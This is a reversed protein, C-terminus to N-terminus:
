SCPCSRPPSASSTDLLADGPQLHDRQLHLGTRRLTRPWAGRPAPVEWVGNDRDRSVPDGRAPAGRNGQGAGRAASGDERRRRARHRLRNARGRGRPRPHLALAPERPRQPARAHDRTRARCRRRLVAALRRQRRVLIPVRDGCGIGGDSRGLVVRQDDPRRPRPRPGPDARRDGFQDRRVRRRHGRGHRIPRRLLVLRQDRLRDGGHGPHLGGAHDPLAEQARVQRDAPRVRAGRRLRRRRVRGGRCRDSRGLDRDWQGQKHAPDRGVRGDDGRARRPDVRHRPRDRGDLPVDVVPPPRAAGPHTDRDHRRSREDRDGIGGGRTHM